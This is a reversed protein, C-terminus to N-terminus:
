YGPRKLRHIGAVWVAPTLDALCWRMRKSTRSVAPNFCNCPDLSKYHDILASKAYYLHGFNHEAPFEAGRADLLRWMQHELELPNYSKRVIYDQHFVNCFFHGYYMGPGPASAHDGGAVDNVFQTFPHQTGSV